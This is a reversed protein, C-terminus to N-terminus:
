KKNKEGFRRLSKKRWGNNFISKKRSIRTRKYVPNWKKRRRKIVRFIIKFCYFLRISANWDDQPRSIENMFISEPCKQTFFRLLSNIESTTKTTSQLPSLCKNPRCDVPSKHFCIRLEALKKTHHISAHRLCLDMFNWWLSSSKLM